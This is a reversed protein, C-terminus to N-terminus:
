RKAEGMLDDLTFVGRRGVIWRAAALAGAAFLRRDLAEHVLRVREFPADFVLEHTGPVQGTRVSTIPVPLGQVRESVDALMRATGSPMDRKEAHHTETLHANFGAGDHMFLRSAEAVVRAFLHVGIAFNPSWLLAGSSRRVLAEVEVREADWGTTGSVVPVGLDVCARVVSAAASPSTFELVVEAGNLSERLIGRATDAPGLQAVVECGSQPALTSVMKGMRGLGVVAIRTM